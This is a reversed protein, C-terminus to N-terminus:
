KGEPAPLPGVCNGAVWSGGAKVCAQMRTTEAAEDCKRDDLKLITAAGFIYALSAVAALVIFERTSM